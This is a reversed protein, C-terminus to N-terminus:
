NKKYARRLHVKLTLSGLASEISTVWLVLYACCASLYLLCTCPALMHMGIERMCALHHVCVMDPRCHLCVHQEHRQKVVNHPHKLVSCPPPLPAQFSANRLGHLLYALRLASISYDAFLLLAALKNRCRLRIRGCVSRKSVPLPRCM